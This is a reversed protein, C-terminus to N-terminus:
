SRGEGDTPDAALPVSSPLAQLDRPQPLVFPLSGRAPLWEFGLSLQWPIWEFALLGRFSGCL